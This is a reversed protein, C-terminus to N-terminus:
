SCNGLEEWLPCVWLQGAGGALELLSCRVPRELYSENQPRKKLSVHSAKWGGAEIGCSLGRAETLAVARQRTSKGLM